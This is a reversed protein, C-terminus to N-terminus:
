RRSVRISVVAVGIVLAIVGGIILANRIIDAQAKVRITIDKEQSEIRENGEYGVAEVRVDYESVGLDPPPVLTINVPEKDGPLIKAITDPQTTYTWDLPPTLVLYVGEVELTGTNLLDVRVM